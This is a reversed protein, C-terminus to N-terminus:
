MKNNPACTQPIACRAVNQQLDRCYKNKSVFRVSIKHDKIKTYYRIATSLLVTVYFHNFHPMNQTLLGFSQDPQHKLVINSGQTNM